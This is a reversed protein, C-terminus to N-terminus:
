SRQLHANRHKGGAASPHMTAPPELRFLELLMCKHAKRITEIGHESREEQFVIAQFVAFMAPAIVLLFDKALVQEHLYGATIAQQVHIEYQARYPELVGSRWNAILQQCRKGEAIVLRLTKVVEPRMLSAYLEDVFAEVSARILAPDADLQFAPLSPPTLTRTLLAQFIADKGVFHAYVGTKSLGARQAIGEIRAAAFGHRSFEILAADLILRSRVEPALRVRRRAQAPATARDAPQPLPHRRRPM